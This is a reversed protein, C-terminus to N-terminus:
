EEFLKKLKLDRDLLDCVKNGVNTLKTNDLEDKSLIEKDLLSTIIKTKAIEAPNRSGYMFIACLNNNRNDIYFQRLFNAEEETIEIEIEIRLNM